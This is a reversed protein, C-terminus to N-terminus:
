SYGMFNDNTKVVINTATAADAMTTSDLHTDMVCAAASAKGPLM